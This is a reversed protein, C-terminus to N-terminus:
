TETTDSRTEYYLSDSYHESLSYPLASLFLLHNIDRNKAIRSDGCFREVIVGQENSRHRQWCYPAKLM